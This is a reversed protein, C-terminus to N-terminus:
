ARNKETYSQAIGNGASVTIRTKPGVPDIEHSQGDQSYFSIWRDNDRDYAEAEVTAEVGAVVRVLHSGDTVLEFEGGDSFTEREKVVRM